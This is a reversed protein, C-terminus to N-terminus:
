LSGDRVVAFPVVVLERMLAMIQRVFERNRPLGVTEAPEVAHRQVM